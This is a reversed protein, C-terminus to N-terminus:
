RVPTVAASAWWSGTSVMGVVTSIDRRGYPGLVRGPRAIRRGHPAPGASTGRAPMARGTCPRAWTPMSERGVVADGVTEDDGVCSATQAEVGIGEDGRRVGESSARASM